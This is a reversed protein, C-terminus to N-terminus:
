GEGKLVKSVFAQRDAPQQLHDAVEALFQGRSSEPRAARKIIVRAVPGLHRALERGAREILEPTLLDSRTRNAAGSGASGAGSASGPAAPASGAGALQTGDTSPDVVRRQRALGALGQVFAIREEPSSLQASVREILADVGTVQLAARRVLVKAVPGVLRVLSREIAQLTAADWGARALADSRLSPTTPPPTMALTPLNSALGRQQAGAATPGRAEALLPRVAERLITEESITPSVPRDFAELVAARMEAASAHREAVPKALAKLVVADFRACGPRTSIASPPPPHEHCVQYMVAEATGSFPVKGTLLQYLVVGASFVDVRRDVPRGLYLEPAIFGPTGMVTGVQTLTASDIRAVGFDAIKLRGNNMIIVNAPKIDRHLVGQSHAYDLAELLQALISVVDDEEFTVGRVFYHRLSNGEVYEMAIYAQEDGEGYEYVGVIGPHLLRGAAQAENRFRASLGAALEPDDVILDKRITKIAISRQIGPDFAKYVVGMAGKGLIGTVPYKGLKEPLLPKGGGIPRVPTAM